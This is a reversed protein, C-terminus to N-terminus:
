HTGGIAFHFNMLLTYALFGWAASAGLAVVVTRIPHDVVEEDRSSFLTVLFVLPLAAFLGFAVPTSFVFSTQPLWSKVYAL